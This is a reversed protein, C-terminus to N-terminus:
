NFESNDNNKSLITFAHYTKDKYKLSILLKFTLFTNSLMKLMRNNNKLSEENVNHSIRVINKVLPIIPFKSNQFSALDDLSYKSQCKTYPSSKDM